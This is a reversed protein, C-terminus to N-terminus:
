LSNLGPIKQTPRYDIDIGNERLDMIFEAEVTYLDAQIERIQADINLLAIQSEMAAFLAMNLMVVLGGIWGYVVLRIVLKRM